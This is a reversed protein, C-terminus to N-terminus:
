KLVSNMIICLVYFIKDSDIQFLIYLLKIPSFLYMESLVLSVTHIKMEYVPIKGYDFVFFLFWVM